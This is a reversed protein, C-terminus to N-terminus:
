EEWILETWGIKMLMEEISTAAPDFRQVKSPMVYSGTKRISPIVEHTIWRKFQKAEPKNSRIILAYLGSESIINLFQAGGRKRSHGDSFRLAIKEDDDVDSIGVTMKEDDHLSSITLTMKEDDDLASVADRSNAIGLIDCVDKAVWWPEDDRMIIRVTQENFDLVQLANTM